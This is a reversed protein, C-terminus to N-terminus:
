PRIRRAAFRKETRKAAVWNKEMLEVIQAISATRMAQVRRRDRLVAPLAALAALKGRLAPWARGARLYYLLGATAYVAHSPLSRWLLAPPTNKLWVWELNRQGYYVAMPSVAGLSGSGAHRVVASAAYWVRLGLLRARYSLDVDEFNMFFRRDFGGLREFDARRIAFAAGCAGFVERSASFAEVGAGYGHKFAGGARFYGDGASDVISPEDLFVLRSTLVAFEPHAASEAFLQQLWDPAAATDNNLFVLWEGQAARAGVNNGEAFGLNGGSDVVRVDPWRGRVFAASGDTSGNDVLVVECPPARRQGALADLCGPLWSRGNYNLVIVSAVPPM